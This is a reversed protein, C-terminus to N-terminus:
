HIQRLSLSIAALRIINESYIRKQEFDKSLRRPCNLWALTREVIWRKPQILFAQTIKTSFDVTCTHTKRVSEEFFGRYGLDALINKVQKRINLLNSM